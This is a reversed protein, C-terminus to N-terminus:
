IVSFSKGALPLGDVNFHLKIAGGPLWATKEVDEDMLRLFSNKVGVYVSNETNQLITDSKESSAGRNMVTRADKPVPLNAAARLGSLLENLAKQTVKNEFSWNGLFEVLNPQGDVSPLDEEDDDEPDSSLIDTLGLSDCFYWLTLM